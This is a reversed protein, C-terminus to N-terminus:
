ASIVWAYPCTQLCVRPVLPDMLSSARYMVNCFCCRVFDAAGTYFFGDNALRERSGYQAPWDFFTYIRLRLGELDLVQFNPELRNFMVECDDERSVYRLYVGNPPPDNSSPRSERAENESRTAERQRTRMFQLLPCGPSKERHTRYVDGNRFGSHRASCAHCQVESGKGTSFFGLRSLQPPRSLASDPYRLYTALRCLELPM